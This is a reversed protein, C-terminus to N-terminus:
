KENTSSLYMQITSRLRDIFLPNSPRIFGCRLLSIPSMPNLSASMNWPGSNQRCMWLMLAELQWLVLLFCLAYFMSCLVYHQPLSIKMTHMRLYKIFLALYDVIMPFYQLVKPDISIEDINPQWEFRAYRIFIAHWRCVQVTTRHARVITTGGIRLITKILRFWINRM